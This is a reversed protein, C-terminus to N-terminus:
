QRIWIREGYQGSNPELARAYGEVTTVMAASSGFLEDLQSAYAAIAAIKIGLTTDIAQTIPRLPEDLLGLRTELAGPRAVYPFDEYYVLEEGWVSRAARFTIQHDVHLGVGLPAYVRAGPVRERLSAFLGELDPLLPDDAAPTGFLTARSHYAAPYRYIADLRGAWLTDAGILDLAAREERLRAAVVEAASLRWFTHFERALSSFRTDPAPAATCITLVLVREGRGAHAAIAGGCSLAADDLHPSLYIHAYSRDLEDISAIHM